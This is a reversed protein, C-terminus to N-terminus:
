WKGFVAKLDSVVALSYKTCLQYLNDVATNMTIKKSLVDKRAKHIHIQLVYNTFQYEIKGNIMGCWEPRTKPPINIESM